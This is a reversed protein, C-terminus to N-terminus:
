VTVTRPQAVCRREDPLTANMTSRSPVPSSCHTTAFASTAAGTQSRKAASVISVDSATVPATRASARAGPPYSSPTQPISIMPARAREVIRDLRLLVADIMEEIVPM